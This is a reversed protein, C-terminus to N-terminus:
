DLLADSPTGFSHRKTRLRGRSKRLSEEASASRWRHTGRSFSTVGARFSIRTCRFAQAMHAWRSESRSPICQSARSGSRGTQLRRHRWGGHFHGTRKLHCNDHARLKAARSKSRGITSSLVCLRTVAKNIRCDSGWGNELQRFEEVSCRASCRVGGERTQLDHESKSLDSEGM